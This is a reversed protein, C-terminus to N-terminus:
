SVNEYRKLDSTTFDILNTWYYFTLGSCRCCFIVVLDFIQLFVIKWCHVSKIKIFCHRLLPPNWLKPIKLSKKISPFMFSKSHKLDKLMWEWKLVEANQKLVGEYAWLKYCYDKRVANNAFSNLCNSM